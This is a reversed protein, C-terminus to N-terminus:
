KHSFLIFRHNLYGCKQLIKLAFYFMDKYGYAQWKLGKIARNIGEVVGTTVRHDFYNWLRQDGMVSHIWKNINWAKAQSSWEYIETLMAQAQEKDQCDFMKHLHEKIVELRAMKYNLGTVYDIHISDKQSRHKAKTLFIYKYKNNMLDEMKGEPDINELEKRRDENLANNFQQVLHFRDWVINARPCHIKVSASYAEHQDTAVVIIEKCAIPGILEFFEDLAKKRRSQSVWVVKHTKLDVIVTLFLDDRNEGEKLQRPGRAYVEDVGIHTLKPIRYGQLLRKLIYKDVRYCSM